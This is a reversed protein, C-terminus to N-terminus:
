LDTLIKDTVRLCIDAGEGRFAHMERPGRKMSYIERPLAKRFRRAM